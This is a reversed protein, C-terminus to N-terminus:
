PASSKYSALMSLEELSANIQNRLKELLVEVSMNDTILPVGQGCWMSMSYAAGQRAAEKRVPSSLNNSIPYAPIRPVEREIHQIFENVIGRAMKGSFAETLTTRDTLDDKAKLLESKYTVNAGSEKTTLFATGMQVAAAGLSMASVIGRGDMIGGAAIVPCPLEDVLRPILAMTGLAEKPSSNFFGGRHGGAEYGQAIVADIGTEILIKAEKLTTATGMLYTNNAKFAQIVDLPLNGFTFSVIKINENILLDVIDYFNDKGNISEPIGWEEPMDLMRRFKNLARQYAQIAQVNKDGNIPTFVNVAFPNSTLKKIERIGDEVQQTSLYGTAFSGIGSANAVAAVLKPTTIGGAMPAQVIVPAKLSFQKAFEIARNKM